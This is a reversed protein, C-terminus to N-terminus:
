GSRSAECAPRIIEDFKPCLSVLDPKFFRTSPKFSRIARLPGKPQNGPRVCLVTQMGAGSAADLEGVVDSIFLVEMAPLHLAAAIQGIARLM